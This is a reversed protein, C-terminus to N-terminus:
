RVAFDIEVRTEIFMPPPRRLRELKIQINVADQMLYQKIDIDSPILGLVSGVNDPVPQRYFIETGCNESEDGQDCIRVSMQDIFDYDASGFIVSFRGERPIIREVQEEVTNNSGLLGAYNTPVDSINFYHVQFPSLTPPFETDINQLPFVFLTRAKDKKCASFLFIVALLLFLNKM